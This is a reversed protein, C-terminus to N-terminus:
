TFLLPETILSHSRLDAGRNMVPFEVYPMDNCWDKLSTELPSGFSPSRLIQLIPSGKTVNAEWFQKQFYIKPIACFTSKRPKQKM